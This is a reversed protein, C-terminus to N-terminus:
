YSKKILKDFESNLRNQEQNLYEKEFPAGCDLDTRQRILEGNIFYSSSELIESLEEEFVESDNNEKMATSDWYIPRNYQWQREFVFSLKGNKIYFEQKKKGTEGFHILAIKLITDKIFYYVSRVDHM